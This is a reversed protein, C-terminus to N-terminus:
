LNDVVIYGITSTDLANASTIVFGIGATVVVSLDGVTGGVLARSLFVLSNATVTTNVVTVTGAILVVKGSDSGYLALNTFTTKAM